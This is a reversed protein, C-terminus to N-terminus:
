GPIIGTKGAAEWREYIERIQVDLASIEEDLQAKRSEFETQLDANSEQMALHAERATEYNTSKLLPMFLEDEPTLVAKPDNPNPTPTPLVLDALPDDVDLMEAWSDLIATFPAKEYIDWLDNLSMTFTLNAGNTRALLETDTAVGTYNWPMAGTFWLDGDLSTVTSSRGNEAPLIVTRIGKEILKQDLSSDYTGEPFFIATPVPLNDRTLWNSISTYWNQFNPTREYVLCSGWGDMMLRNFQDTTLKNYLGPLQRTNIGLVGVIGRDRMLPYVETYIKEDMDRILLQVTGVDRMQIAYDLELENRKAELAERQRQLPEVETYLDRMNRKDAKEVKRLFYVGTGLLLAVLILAIAKKATM